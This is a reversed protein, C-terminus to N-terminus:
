DRFNVTIVFSYALVGWSLTLCRRPPGGIVDWVESELRTMIQKDQVGIQGNPTMLRARNIRRIATAAPALAAVIHVGYEKALGVHLADAEDLKDSVSFLANELEGAVELGDLTAVEM